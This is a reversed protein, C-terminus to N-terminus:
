LSLPDEVVQGILLLRHIPRLEVGHHLDAFIQLSRYLPLEDRVYRDSGKEGAAEIRARDHRKRLPPEAALAHLAERDAEFLGLSVALAHRGVKRVRLTDGLM